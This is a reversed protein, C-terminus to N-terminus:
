LKSVVSLNKLPQVALRTLIHELFIEDPLVQQTGDDASDDKTTVLRSEETIPKNDCRRIQIRRKKTVM